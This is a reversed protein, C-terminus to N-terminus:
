FGVQAAKMLATAGLFDVKDVDIPYGLMCNFSCEYLLQVIDLLGAHCARMLPTDGGQPSACSVVLCVLAPPFSAVASPLVAAAIRQPWGPRMCGGQGQARVSPDSYNIDVAFPEFTDRILLLNILQRLSCLLLRHCTLMSDLVCASCDTDRWRAMMIRPACRSVREYTGPRGALELVEASVTKSLVCCSRCLRLWVAHARSCACTVLSGHQMRM